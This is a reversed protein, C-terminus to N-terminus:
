FKKLWEDFDTINKKSLKPQNEPIEWDKLTEIYDLYPKREYKSENSEIKPIYAPKMNLSILDDFNFDKFWIHSSIQEFTSYRSLQNKNLMSHMLSKFDHDNVFKPFSLQSLFLIIFIISKSM